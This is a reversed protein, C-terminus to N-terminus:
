LNPHGAQGEQAAGLQSQLRESLRTAFAEWTELFGKWGSGAGWRLAAFQTIVQQLWQYARQLGEAEAPETALLIMRACYTVTPSTKADNLLATCINKCDQISLGCGPANRARMLTEIEYHDFVDQIGCGPYWLNMRCRELQILDIGLMAHYTPDAVSKSTGQLRKIFIRTGRNWALLDKRRDTYIVGNIEELSPTSAVMIEHNERIQAMLSVLSRFVGLNDAPGARIHEIHDFITKVGERQLVTNTWFESEVQSSVLLHKGFELLKRDDPSFSALQSVEAALRLEELKRTMEGARNSFNSTAGIRVPDSITYGYGTGAPGPSWDRQAGEQMNRYFFLGHGFARVGISWFAEQQIDSYLSVPIPFRRQRLIPGPNILRPSDEKPTKRDGLSPWDTKLWYGLPLCGDADV